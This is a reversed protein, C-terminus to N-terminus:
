VLGRGICEVRCGIRVLDRIQAESLVNNSDLVLGRWGKLFDEDFKLDRYERHDVAFVLADYGTLNPFDLMPKASFEEWFRVMPDHFEVDVSEKLLARAFIESPSYRTDSVDPRYSVGCLLIRKNALSDGFVTKLREVSVLPMRNNTAVASRSFPFDLDLGFIQKAAVRGFLPDKTLCYGGVGFGPQRMNNHTPRQRIANIVSFLDVGVSEAFRGWEEIFAINTARYSNELVKATESARLNALRTLPYDKTNIIKRLFAECKDASPEDLGAFVRWFNVISFLYEHGPMVREYSHALFLDSEKLGRALFKDRLVPYIVKECTGPPVTTEVLVLCGAKIRDGLTEMARILASFDVTPDEDADPAGLDLNIDVIVVDAWSYVEPDTFARLNKRELTRKAADVLDLDNSEAPFMGANLSKVSHLGRANPLDVGVVNFLPQGNSDSASAVAVAMASGVFGLGQICVVPREVEFVDGPNEPKINKEATNL